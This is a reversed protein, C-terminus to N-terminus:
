QIRHQASSPGAPGSAPLSPPAPASPPITLLVCVSRAERGAMSVGGGRLERVVCTASGAFALGANVGGWGGGGGSYEDTAVLKTDNMRRATELAGNM